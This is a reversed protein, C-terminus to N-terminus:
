SRRSTLFGILVGLAVAGLLTSGPHARAADEGSQLLSRAQATLENASQSLRRYTDAALQQLAQLRDAGGELETEVSEDLDPLRASSPQAEAHPTESFVENGTPQPAIHDPASPDGSASRQEPRKKSAM